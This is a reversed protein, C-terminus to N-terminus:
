GNQILLSAVVVDKKIAGQAFRDGIDIFPKRPQIADYLWEATHREGQFIEVPYDALHIEGPIIELVPIGEPFHGIRQLDAPQVLKQLRHVVFVPACPHLFAKSVSCEARREQFQGGIIVVLVIDAAAHGVRQFDGPRGANVTIEQKLSV